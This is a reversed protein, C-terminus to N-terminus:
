DIDWEHVYINLCEWDASKIARWYLNTRDGKSCALMLRKINLLVSYNELLIEINM